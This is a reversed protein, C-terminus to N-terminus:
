CRETSSSSTSWTRLSHPRPASSGRRSTPWRCATSCCRCATSRSARSSLRSCSTPTGLQEAAIVKNTAGGFAELEWVTLAARYYYVDKDSDPFFPALTEGLLGRYWDVMRLYIQPPPLVEGPDEAGEGYGGRKGEAAKSPRPQAHLWLKGRFLRTVPHSGRDMLHRRIKLPRWPSDRDPHAFPLGSEYLHGAERILASAVEPSARLIVHGRAGRDPLFAILEDVHGVGLWATDIAVVPQVAASSEFLDRIRPDLLREEGEGVVVKGFPHGEVPPSAEVNGGYVLSDHMRKVTDFLDVLDGGEVQFTRKGLVLDFVEAGPSGGVAVTREVNGALQLAYDRLASLSTRETDTADKLVRDAVALMRRRLEPLQLRIVTVTRVVPPLNSCERPPPSVGLDSAAACLRELAGRLYANALVVRHLVRFAAESEAFTLQTVGGTHPLPVTRLWFDEILGLDTSPFHTRVLAALNRQDVGLQANSRFRPMHLVTRM